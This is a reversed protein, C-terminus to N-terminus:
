GKQFLCMEEGFNKIHFKQVRKTFRRQWQKLNDVNNQNKKLIIKIVQKQKAITNGTLKLSNKTAEVLYQIYM